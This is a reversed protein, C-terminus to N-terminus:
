IPISLLLLKSMQSNTNKMSSNLQSIIHTPIHLNKPWRSCNPMKHNGKTKDETL